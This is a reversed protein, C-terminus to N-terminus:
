YARRHDGAISDAWGLRELVVYLDSFVYNITCEEEM